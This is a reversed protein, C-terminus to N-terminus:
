LPPTKPNVFNTKADNTPLPPNNNIQNQSHTTNLPTNNEIKNENSPPNPPNKQYNESIPELPIQPESEQLEKALQLFQQTCNQRSHGPLNCKKCKNYTCFRFQINPSQPSLPVFPNVSLNLQQKSPHSSRKKTLNEWKKTYNEYHLIEIKNLDCTIHSYSITITDKNIPSKDSISGFLSFFNDQLTHVLPCKFQVKTPRTSPTVNNSAEKTDFFIQLSKYSIIKQDKDIEDVNLNEIKSTIYINLADRFIKQIPIIDEAKVQLFITKNNSSHVLLRQNNKPNISILHQLSEPIENELIQNSLEDFISDPFILTDDKRFKISIISPYNKQQEDHIQSISSFIKEDLTIKSKKSQFNNSQEPIM